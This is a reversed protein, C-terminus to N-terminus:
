PTNQIVVEPILNLEYAKAIAEARSSVNLKKYIGTLYREVSRKAMFMEESIEDNTLGRILSLLIKEESQSLHIIKGNDLVIENDRKRLQTLLDIPIVSQGDMACWIARILQEGSNSKSIFGSVGIDILYNFYLIIDHGTFILVKADQHVQHIDKTLEIGNKNAMNLDVIYIDYTKSKILQSAEISCMMYDVRFEAETSLLKKTGEGVVEHDDVILIEIM